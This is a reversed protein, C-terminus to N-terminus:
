FLLNYSYHCGIVSHIVRLNSSEILKLIEGLSVGLASLDVEAEEARYLQDPSALFIPGMATRNGPLGIKM